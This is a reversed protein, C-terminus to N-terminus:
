FFTLDDDGTSAPEMDKFVGDNVSIAAQHNMLEEPMTYRLEMHELMKNKLVSEADRDSLKIQANSDTM